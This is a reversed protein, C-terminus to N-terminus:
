ENDAERIKCDLEAVEGSFDFMKVERSKLNFVPVRCPIPSNGVKEEFPTMSQWCSSAILLVGKRRAVEARHQDATAIIDPVVDIVLSDKKECPIYDVLGHMPALHRRKLMEEVVRTPERHGYKTRLEPMENIFQNISAGHYMLIKFGGDVEVLSPNPVLHLNPIKHLGPAWKEGIAPQPEGLWVSDHQGPCMIIEVDDRVLRLIEEVKKYQSYSTKENLFKEQGPYHSVGDINDGTLFLYKIKKGIERQEPNGEVGNIWKVFRLLEEELFMTSGIHFDSSFAVCEDYDSVREEELKSEPFIIDNVFLMESNGSVKFAVIDDLMLNKGKEFIEAKNKNVLVPGRGTLDEVELLINKNKTVRKNLVAGIIVYSGQNIGVKRISSLNDYDGKELVEKLANYRLKFHNVFDRVEIKRQPFSLSSILKVAGTDGLEIHEEEVSREKKFGLGSFLSDIEDVGQSTILVSKFKDFHESFIKKTIVREGIGLNALVDVVSEVGEKNLNSLLELVEKDLLFGKEMCLKLIESAM